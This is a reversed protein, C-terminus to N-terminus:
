TPVPSVPYLDAVLRQAYGDDLSQLFIKAQSEVSSDRCRRRVPIVIVEVHVYYVVFRGDRKLRKLVQAFATEQPVVIRIESRDLFSFLFDLITGCEGSHGEFTRAVGHLSFEVVRLELPSQAVDLLGEVGLGVQPRDISKGCLHLFGGDRDIELPLILLYDLGELSGINRVVELNHVLVGEDPGQGVKSLWHSVEIAAQEAELEAETRPEGFLLGPDLEFSAEKMMADGSVPCGAVKRWQASSFIDSGM